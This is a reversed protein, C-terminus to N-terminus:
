SDNLTQDVLDALTGEQLIGNHKKKITDVWTRALEEQKSNANRIKHILREKFSPIDLGFFHYILYFESSTFTFSKLRSRAERKFEDSSALDNYNDPYNIELVHLIGSLHYPDIEEIREKIFNVTDKLEEPRYDYYRYKIENYIAAWDGKKRMGLHAKAMYMKASGSLNRIDNKITSNLSRFDKHSEFFRKAVNDDSFLDKVFCNYEYHNTLSNNTWTLVAPDLREINKKLSDITNNYISMGTSNEGRASYTNLVYMIYGPYLSKIVREAHEPRMFFSFAEEYENEYEKSNIGQFLVRFDSEFRSPDSVALIKEYFRSLQSVITEKCKRELTEGSNSDEDCIAKFLCQADTSHPLYYYSGEKKCLGKDFYRRLDTKEKDNLLEKSLPVGFQYLCSLLLLTDNDDLPHYETLFEELIDDDTVNDKDRLQNFYLYLLRMNSTIGEGLVPSGNIMLTEPEKNILSALHRIVPLTDVGDLETVSDNDKFLIEKKKSPRMTILFRSTKDPTIYIEKLTSILSRFDSDEFTHTDELVFLTNDIRKLECLRQLSEILSETDWREKTVYVNWGENHYDYAILSSISSKGRGESGTIVCMGTKKLKDKIEKETLEDRFFSRNKIAQETVVSKLLQLDGAEEEKVDNVFLAKDYPKFCSEKSFDKLEQRKEKITGIIHDAISGTIHDAIWILFKSFFSVSM